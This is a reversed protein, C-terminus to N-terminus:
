GNAIREACLSAFYPAMSLKGTDISHYRGTSIVGIDRRIHLVSQRDDIDTEGWAVIAGGKIRLDHFDEAALVALAPVLNALGAVSESAM